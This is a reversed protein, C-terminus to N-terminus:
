LSQWPIKSTDMCTDELNCYLVAKGVWLLFVSVIHCTEYCLVTTLIHLTFTFNDRHKLQAGRWSSTNRSYLYLEM